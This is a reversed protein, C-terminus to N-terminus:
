ATTSRSRSRPARPTSSSTRILVRILAIPCTIAESQSGAQSRARGQDPNSPRTLTVITNVNILFVLESRVPRRVREGRDPDIRPQRHGPQGLHLVASQHLDGGM